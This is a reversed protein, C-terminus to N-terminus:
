DSNGKQLFRMIAVEVFSERPEQLIKQLKRPLLGWSSSARSVRGRFKV